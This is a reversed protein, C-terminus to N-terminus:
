MWGLVTVFVLVPCPQHSTIHFGPSLEKNGWPFARMKEVTSWQVTTTKQYRNHVGYDKPFSSSVVASSPAPRAECLLRETDAKGVRGLLLLLVLSLSVFLFVFFLACGPVRLHCSPALNLFVPLLCGVFCIVRSRPAVPFSYGEPVVSRSVRASDPSRSAQPEATKNHWPRASCRRRRRKRRM